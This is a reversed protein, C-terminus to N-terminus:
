FSAQLRVGPLFYGFKESQNDLVHQLHFALRLRETLHLNYYGEVLKENEGSGLETQAYGIGWADQPNFIIGTKFSVGLSYFRDHGDVAESQGYRGFITTAPSFKQDISVGFGTQNTALSNDWRYWVRYNGEPLSFPRAVYDFETLTFISDSLNTAQNNSQQLGLKLSAGKKSDYVAAVGTGNVALGLAPNNVLADSLFQTTEDNAATNHDFYNTLDLRGAIIALRQSFLETRLWTERLNLQNQTGLRATYSNLLTLSPIEQDPVSGSLAVVDAFFVTHQALGANFFLDASALAYTHGAADTKPGSSQLATQSVITANVGLGVRHSEADAIAEELKENITQRRYVRERQYTVEKKTGQAPQDYEVGNDDVFVEIRKVRTEPESLVALSELENIRQELAKIRDLLARTDTSGGEGARPTAEAGVIEFPELTVALTENTPITVEQGARGFGPADVQLVYTGAPLQQFTFTGDAGSRTTRPPPENQRMNPMNPMAAGAPPLPRLSIEANAVVGGRLDAVRGNLSSTQAFAYTAMLSLACAWVLSRFRYM